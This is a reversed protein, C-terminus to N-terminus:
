VYPDWAPPGQDLVSLYGVVTDIFLEPSIGSPVDGVTRLEPVIARAGDFRWRVEGPELDGLAGALGTLDVRLRPRTTTLMVWTEYRFRLEFRAGLITAVRLRDTHTNVAAPHVAHNEWAITRTDVAGADVRVIALDHEPVDEILVSRGLASAAADFASREERWLKEFDQPREVIGGLLLLSESAADGLAAFRKEAPASRVVELPTRAPDLLTSLCFAVMAAAHDRVVGFDGVRAVEVLFDSHSEALEPAVVMGLAVLGDEDYHDITALEARVEDLSGDEIARVAIQASLDARLHEPTSSSPWHSLTLVTGPRAAGDVMVHPADGLRDYPVYRKARSM